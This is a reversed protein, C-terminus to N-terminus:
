VGTEAVYITYDGSFVPASGNTEQPAILASEGRKLILREDGTSICLEGGTVLVIAPGKGPLPTEGGRGTIGTLSFERCPSPYRSLGPV